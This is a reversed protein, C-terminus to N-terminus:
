RGLGDLWDAFGTENRINVPAYLLLGGSNLKVVFSNLTYTATEFLQRDTFSELAFVEVAKQIDHHAMEVAKEGHQAAGALVRDKYEPDTPDMGFFAAQEKKEKTAFMSNATEYQVQWLRGPVVESITYPSEGLCDYRFIALKHSCQRVYSLEIM